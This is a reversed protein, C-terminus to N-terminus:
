ALVLLLLLGVVFVAVALLIGRSAALPDSDDAFRQADKWQYRAADGPAPHEMPLEQQVPPPAEDKEIGALLRLREGESLRKGDVIM